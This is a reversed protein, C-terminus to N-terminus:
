GATLGEAGGNTGQVHLHKTEYQRLLLLERVALQLFRGGWLGTSLIAGFLVVADVSLRGEHTWYVDELRLWLAFEDLTMAAGAGYGAAALRGVWKRPVMYELGAVGAYGVLHLLLIGWVLHHIHTKGMALNRVPGRGSRILHTIGRITGFTLTFSASAIFLREKWPEQFHIRYHHGIAQHRRLHPMLQHHHRGEM